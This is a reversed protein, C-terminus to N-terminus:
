VSKKTTSTLEVKGILFQSKYDPMWSYNSVVQYGEIHEVKGILFQSMAYVISQPMM